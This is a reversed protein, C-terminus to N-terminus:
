RLAAPAAQPCWRGMALESWGIEVSTRWPMSPCFLPKFMVVYSFGSLLEARSWRSGDPSAGALRERVEGLGPALLVILAIGALAFVVQLARRQLRRPALEPPMTVPGPGASYPQVGTGSM